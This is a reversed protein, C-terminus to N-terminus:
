CMAGAIEFFSVKMQNQYKLSRMAGLFIPIMAMIVLSAYAVIMGEPTAPIKENTITETVNEIAQAVSEVVSEAM